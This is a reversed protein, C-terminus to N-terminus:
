VRIGYVRCAHMCSLENQNALGSYARRFNGDFGSTGTKGHKLPVVTCM